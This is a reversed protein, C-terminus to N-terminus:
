VLATRDRDHHLHVTYPRDRRFTFYSASHVNPGIAGRVRPRGTWQLSMERALSMWQGRVSDDARLLFEATFWLGSRRIDRATYM